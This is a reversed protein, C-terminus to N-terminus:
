GKHPRVLEPRRSEALSVATDLDAAPLFYRGWRRWHTLYRSKRHNLCEMQARLDVLALAANNQAEILGEKADAQEAEERLLDAPAMRGTKVYENTNQVQENEADLRAQAASVLSAQYLASAYAESVAETVSLGKAEQSSSAASALDNASKVQEGLKGGTFIPMMLTINQDAFSRAPTDM